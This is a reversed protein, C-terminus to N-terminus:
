SNVTATIADLTADSVAAAGGLVLVAGIDTRAALWDRTVTSLPSPTTLLTLAGLASGALADVLNADAGSAVVVKGAGVLGSLDDAINRATAFRDAGALRRPSPLQDKVAESVAGTGGVVITAQVGLGDLATKTAPPLADRSVLLIPWRVAGAPGGAALADVLHGDDGSAVFAQRPAGGMERAVAAATAWRDAGAVRTVTTVGLAHLDSVVAPGLSAEGGVLYATGPRRRAIEAKVPDPLGGGPSLLLPASKARALPGAVLGDVLHGTEGSALVVAASTPAAEQGIAVSTAYRDPGAVRTVPTRIWAAPLALRSRLTNGTISATQGSSSRAVATRVWGGSTRSSLDVSVVDGLGFAGAVDAQSKTYSWTAKPNDSSLSWHDDVGRLYSLPTGGFIDENNETRGGSSSFYFTTILSGGALAVLGTDGTPSTADVAAVRPAAGPANQATWGNFVQDATTDYVHCRCDSRLGAQYKRLAYTRAAIAQAQLAAAPWSGPVEAMGWLYEGHLKLTNVLELNGNVVGLDASGYRYETATPLAERAAAARIVTPTGSWQIGVDVGAGVLADNKFVAVKGSSPLFGWVDGAIGTLPAGDVVVTIPGSGGDLARSQVFVSAAAHLLNVRLDVRDTRPEISAGSYYHTLIQTATRGEKAQGYAGWQSMGVGHGFGSGAFVFASPPAAAAPPAGAVALTSLACLAAALVGLCRRM